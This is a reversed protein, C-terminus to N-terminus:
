HKSPNKKSSKQYSHIPLSLIDKLYKKGSRKIKSIKHTFNFHNNEFYDTIQLNFVLLDILFNCFDVNKYLDRHNWSLGIGFDKDSINEAGRLPVSTAAVVGDSVINKNYLLRTFWKRKTGRITVWRIDGPTQITSNLRKLFANIPTYKKILKHFFPEWVNIRGVSIQQVQQSQSFNNKGYFIRLFLQIVPNQLLDVIKCGHNPTAILIINKIRLTGWSKTSIQNEGVMFDQIFKRVILGGMSAGIFDIEDNECFSWNDQSTEISKMLEEALTTIDYQFNCRGDKKSYLDFVYIKKYGKPNKTPHYQLAQIYYRHDGIRPPNSVSYGPVIILTRKALNEAENKRFQYSTTDKNQNSLHLANLTLNQSFINQTNLFYKECNM